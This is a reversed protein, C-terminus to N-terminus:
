VCERPLSVHHVEIENRKAHDSFLTSLYNWEEESILHAMAVMLYRRADKTMKYRVIGVGAVLFITLKLCYHYGYKFTRTTAMGRKISEVTKV